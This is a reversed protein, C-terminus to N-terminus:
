KDEGKDTTGVPLIDTLYDFELQSIFVPEGTYKGAIVKAMYWNRNNKGVGTTLELNVLAM